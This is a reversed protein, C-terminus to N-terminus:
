IVEGTSLAHLARWRTSFPRNMEEVFNILLSFADAQDMFTTDPVNFLEYEFDGLWPANEHPMPFLVMDRACWLSAAEWSEEKGIAKVPKVRQRLWREGSTGLVQIAQTGSAADEIAVEKLRYDYDWEAIEKTIYDILESFDKKARGVKRLVMRYDDLVEGICYATYANEEKKKNATDFAVYRAGVRNRWAPDNPDYRNKGQWWDRKFPKGKPDTIWLGNLLQQKTVEDLEELSEQYEERDLYPNENLKAPVFIRKPNQNVIFRDYVWQHGVDGPNSALRFKIPLRADALRRLRSNLYLVPAEEFQTAEDFGVYQFEASKYRLHDRPGSLYGFSITAGSPFQWTKTQDKWRAATGGWWEFARDMLAGPLALDAYTKRFLIAAYDPFDIYQAADM